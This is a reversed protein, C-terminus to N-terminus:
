RPQIRDDRAAGGYGGIMVFGIGAANIAAKGRMGFKVPTILEWLGLVHGLAFLRFALGQDGLTGGVVIYSPGQKLENRLEPWDALAAVLDDKRAGAKAVDVGVILLVCDVMELTRATEDDPDAMYDYTHVTLVDGFSEIKEPAGKRFPLTCEEVIQVIQELM